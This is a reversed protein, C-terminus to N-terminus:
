ASPLLTLATRLRDFIEELEAEELNPYHIHPHAQNNCIRLNRQGNRLVLMRIARSRADSEWSEHPEEAHHRAVLPPNDARVSSSTSFVVYNYALPIARGSVTLSSGKTHAKGAVEWPRHNGGKKRPWGKSPPVLSPCTIKYLWDRHPRSLPEHYDWGAGCPRILLNLYQSFCPHTSAATHQMKEAVRLAAVFRYNTIRNDHPDKQDAFFIIRDNKRIACRLPTRCVGWTVPGHHYQASFFAPDDGLDYPFDSRVAEYFAIATKSTHGLKPARAQYVSVYLSPM